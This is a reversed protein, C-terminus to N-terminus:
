ERVGTKGAAKRCLQKRREAEERFRLLYLMAGDRVSIRRILVESQGKETGLTSRRHGAVTIANVCRGRVFEEM